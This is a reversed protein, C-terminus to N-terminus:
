SRPHYKSKMLKLKEVDLHTYIETTSISRHGLMEQVARLDAGNRLIHTAFSHRIMHPWVRRKIGAKQSYSRLMKWISQRTLKRGRVNLFFVQTEELQTRQIWGHRIMQYKQCWISAVEGVPILRERNGKGTLRLTKATLDLDSVKLNAIESIRAGTAYWLELLARDRVEQETDGTPASVVRFIEDVTLHKPLRKQKVQVLLLESPDKQVKNERLLFKYFQKLASAKRALTRPGIENKRLYALYERLHSLEIEAPNWNKIYCHELFQTLDRQYAQQTNASLGKETAIYALFESLESFNV